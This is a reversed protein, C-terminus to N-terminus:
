PSGDPQKLLGRLRALSDLARGLSPANARARLPDWHDEAFEQILTAYDPGFSRNSLPLPPVGEKVPKKASKRCINILYRKPNDLSEPQQEVKRRIGFFEAFADRDAILWAEMARVAFRLCMFRNCQHDGLLNERLVPICSREDDHDLDRIVLWPMSTATLNLGALKRDLNSKGNATFPRFPELGTALLIKKAVPEDTPGEVAYHVFNM